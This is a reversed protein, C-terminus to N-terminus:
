VARDFRSILYAMWAMCLILYVVLVVGKIYRSQLRNLLTVCILALVAWGGFSILSLMWSTM